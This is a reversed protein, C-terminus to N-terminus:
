HRVNGESPCGSLFSVVIRHWTFTQWRDTAGDSVEDEDSSQFGLEAM